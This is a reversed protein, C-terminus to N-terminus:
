WNITLHIERRSSSHYSQVPVMIRKSDMNIYRDRFNLPDRKRTFGNILPKSTIDPDRPTSLMWNDSSNIVHAFPRDIGDENLTITTDATIKKELVDNFKDPRGDEKVSYAKLTM